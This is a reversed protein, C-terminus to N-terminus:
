WKTDNQTMQKDKTDYKIDNWMMKHWKTDNQTMQEDNQIMNSIM